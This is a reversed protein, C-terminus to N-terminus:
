PRLRRVLRIRRGVPDVISMSMESHDERLEVTYGADWARGLLEEPADVALDVPAGNNAPWPGVELLTEGILFCRSGRLRRGETPWVERGGLLEVYFAGLSKPPRGTPPGRRGTDFISRQIRHEDTHM